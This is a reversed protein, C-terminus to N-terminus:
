GSTRRCGPLDMEQALDDRGLGLELIETQIVGFAATDDPTTSALATWRRAQDDTNRILARHDAALDAPPEVARLLEAEAELGAAVALAFEAVGTADAPEALLAQDALADRCITDVQARYAAPDVDSAPASSCAAVASAAAAVGAVRRSLRHRDRRM